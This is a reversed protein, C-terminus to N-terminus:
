NAEVSKRSSNKYRAITLLRQYDDTVFMWYEEETIDLARIFTAVFTAVEKDEYVHKRAFETMEVAERRPIGFGNMVAERYDNESKTIGDLVEQLSVERGYASRLQQLATVYRQPIKRGDIYAAVLDKSVAKSKEVVSDM